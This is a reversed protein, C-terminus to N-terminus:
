IQQINVMKSFRSQDKSTLEDFSGSEIIVGNDMVYIIDANKITSLRHAIIVVTLSRKLNDISEQIYRESESDLASTAEDLILLNPNKYLERAIFLRQKQGGSVRVGREGVMTEYGDPMQNIFGDAYAKVAAEEVKKRIDPDNRYDGNWLCINNAITDDFVVTDQSVYGIQSRWSSLQIQDSPIGNITLEGETPKLLLTLLDVLTTKGAGSEGAFAVTTNAKIELQLKDLILQERNYSFSLNNFLISEFRPDLAITGDKERHEDTVKFENEVMEISGITSMAQQWNQQMAMLTRMAKYFLILAVVISSIPENMYTVQVVIIGVMLILSVPEQIANTFSRWIQLRYMYDTLLRVSKVVGKRLHDNQATSIIYKLAQLTQILFKNLVSLEESSKRSIGSVRANLSRFVIMLISGTIITFLSIKLSIFFAIGILTVAMIFQTLFGLFHNLIVITNYIQVNLVNIFHGTNQKTFYQYDIRNYSDFMRITLRRLLESQLRASYAGETFKLIGKILFIIITLVLTGILLNTVGMFSLFSYIAVTISNSLNGNLSGSSQILPLLMSIGLGESLAVLLSIIFIIYLKKGLYNQYIKLYSFINISKKQM